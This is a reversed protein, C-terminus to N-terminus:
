KHCIRRLSKLQYTSSFCMPNSLFLCALWFMGATKEAGSEIKQLTSRMAAAEVKRWSESTRKETTTRKKQKKSSTWPRCQWPRPQNMGLRIEGLFISPSQDVSYRLLWNKVDTYDRWLRTPQNMVDFSQCDLPLSKSGAFVHFRSIEM